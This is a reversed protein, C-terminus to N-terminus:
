INRHATCIIGITAIAVTMTTTTTTTMTLIELSRVYCVTFLPSFNFPRFWVSLRKDDTQRGFGSVFVCACECENAHMSRKARKSRDSRTKESTWQCRLKSVKMIVNEQHSRERTTSHACEGFRDSKMLSVDCMMQKNTQKSTFTHGICYGRGKLENWKM